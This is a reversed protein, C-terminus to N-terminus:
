HNTVCKHTGSEGVFYLDEHGANACVRRVFADYLDLWQPASVDTESEGFVPFGADLVTFFVEDDTMTRPVDVLLEYILDVNKRYSFVTAKLRNGRRREGPGLMRNELEELFSHVQKTCIVRSVNQGAKGDSCPWDFRITLLLSSHPYREGIPLHLDNPHATIYQM